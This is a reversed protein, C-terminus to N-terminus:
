SGSRRKGEALKLDQGLNRPFRHILFVDNSVIMAGANGLCQLPGISNLYEKRPFVHNLSHTSISQMEWHKNKFCTKFSFDPLITPVYSM